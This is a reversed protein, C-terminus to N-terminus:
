REGGANNARRALARYGVYVLVLNVVPHALATGLTPAAPAIAFGSTAFGALGLVLAAVGAAVSPASVEVHKSGRVADAKPREFRAFVAVLGSLIITLVGLWVPRWAWWLASGGEAQPFGLPYLAVVAILLATLHWLFVTMIMSNAAIVASWTRRSELKRVFYPRVILAASTLWVTLVMLCITPPSNNSAAETVMGVMSPSYIGSGTLLALLVLAGVATGVFVKRSFALLAGDGYFYGLQHAFLWVTAFNLYGVATLDFAIRIVDVVVATSVLAVLVRAGYREHLALMLPSLAVVLTYVALFWLPKALLETAEAVSDFSAPALIRAVVAAATWVAVFVFTPRMLRATRARLFAGYGEGRAVTGKWAVRNAFGGVFFFLPMVQLVWTLIWLGPVLDLANAGTLRGDTLYVVAMLWHGVVVVFISFARLLDVYRDRTSPTADALDGARMSSNM